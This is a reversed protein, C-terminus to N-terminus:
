VLKYSKLDEKIAEKPKSMMVDIISLRNITDDAKIFNLEIDHAQFEDKKYLDLGGIANIYVPANQNKCISIIKDKGKLEHNIDITSSTIINTKIDLYENVAKLSNFLFNFLNIDDYM